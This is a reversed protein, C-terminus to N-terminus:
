WIKTLSKKLNEKKAAMKKNLVPTFFADNDILVIEGKPDNECWIWFPIQKKENLLKKAVWFKVVQIQGRNDVEVGALIAKETEKIIKM